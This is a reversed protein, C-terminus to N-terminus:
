PNKLVAIPIEARGELRIAPIRHCSIPGLAGNTKPATKDNIASRPRLIKM